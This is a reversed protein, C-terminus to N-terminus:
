AERKGEQVSAETAEARQNNLLRFMMGKIRSIVVDVSVACGTGFGQGRAYELYALATGLLGLLVIGEDAWNTEGPHRVLSSFVDDGLKQVEDSASKDKCYVVYSMKDRGKEKKTPHFV